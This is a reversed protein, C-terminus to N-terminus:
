KTIIVKQIKTGKSNNLRFLYPGDAVLPLIIRTQGSIHKEALVQGLMDIFQLDGDGTVM